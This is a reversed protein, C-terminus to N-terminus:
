LQRHSLPSRGRKHSAVESGNRCFPVTGKTAQRAITEALDHLHPRQTEPLLDITLRLRQLREHFSEGTETQTRKSTSM